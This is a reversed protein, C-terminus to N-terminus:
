APLSDIVARRMVSEPAPRGTFLEYQQFAQGVFMELGSVTACGAAAAEQVGRVTLQLRLLQCGCRSVARGARGADPLARAKLLRTQVPTYIADFALAFGSLVAAPLPSDDVNPQMGISTTNVLVDGSVAGSRVEDLSVM